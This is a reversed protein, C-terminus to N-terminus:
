YVILFLDDLTACATALSWAPVGEARGSVSTPHGDPAFVQWAVKGGKGWTAGETWVLLTEGQKNRVAVPHKRVVQGSPSLPTSVKLDGSNVTACYVQGATEWAALAGGDVQSLTASSMPCTSVRWKDSYAIEFEAGPRKAVLLLADRNFEDAASRFLIYIAGATDAFARMGCCPCAGTQKSIALTERQFTRGEDQSRSIFVARGADENTNGPQPAHWAVYVNGQPDAAVSSGGDLGAAYSILNRESEFGTGEDNLRTYFLPAVDKGAVSVRRTKNGMGDWVVHVRGGKGIALQAGRITGMAVASGGQSNVKFPKSFETQGPSRRVYYIDGGAPDGQYYILHVVGKADVAAQPQIGGGPTRLWRVQGQAMVTSGNSLALCGLLTLFALKLQM